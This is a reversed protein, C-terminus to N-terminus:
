SDHHCSNHRWRQQTVHSPSTMSVWDERDQLENRRKSILDSDQSCLDVQVDKKFGRPLEQANSLGLTFRACSLNTSSDASVKITVFSVLELLASVPSLLFIGILETVAPRLYDIGGFHVTMVVRMMVM